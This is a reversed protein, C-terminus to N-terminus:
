PSAGVWSVVCREGPGTGSCTLTDFTIPRSLPLVISANGGSAPGTFNAASGNGYSVFFFGVGSTMRISLATATAPSGLAVSNLGDGSVSVSLAGGTVPAQEVSLTSNTVNVNATGQEHVAVNGNTDLPGVITATVTQAAWAVPERLLTAGLVLSTLVLLFAPILAKRM